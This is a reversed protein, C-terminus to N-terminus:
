VAAGPHLEGSQLIAADLLNPLGAQFYSNLFGFRLADECERGRWDLWRTLVVQAALRRCCL